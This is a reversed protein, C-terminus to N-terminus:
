HRFHRKGTFIMAIGHENAARIVEDDRISGGPQVAATVGHNAAEILGDAFPFFADSAVVSEKFDLESKGGKMVAIESADIRSMQGAGIGLTAEHRAYVIANSKVHKVIRWAFSIDRWEREEPVRDTVVEVQQRFADPAPLAEDPDQILYGGLMSRVGPRHDESARKLSRILRRNKKQQLFDLVGPEFAPAIILETFIRDIARAAELDLSRNVVVIGGFPSQRDTAFAREYAELLSSASAVGCPNTHKLIACTPRAGYFEDILLLGASLDLLNNFSLAKGHLPEYYEHPAGYVSAKQHPNEGYRLTARHPAEIRLAPQPPADGPPDQVQDQLFDTIAQDYRATHSFAKLALAQRTAMSLSGEQAELEGAVREYDDPSTVVGVFFFNKASARLLTPGGIDINEVAIGLTVGPKSIAERFPYLNVVVLDIPGIGHEQLVALDETDNRRALLGAHIAPHLTKVRGDLIEPFRTVSSVDEVPIGAERLARATGGTSVLEVGMAHLKEAFPVLGAKDAVSLLARHVPYLNEPDPLKKEKIM